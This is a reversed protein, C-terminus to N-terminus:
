KDLELSTESNPQTGVMTAVAVFGKRVLTREVRIPLRGITLLSGTFHAVLQMVVVVTPKDHFYTYSNPHLLQTVHPCQM